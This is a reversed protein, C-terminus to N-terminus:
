PSGNDTLREIVVPARYASFRREVAELMMDRIDSGRIGANAVATWAIVERDPADITFAGRIIDNNWCTFEFGDSRWRPRGVPQSSRARSAM